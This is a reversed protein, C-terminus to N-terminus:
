RAVHHHHRSGRGCPYLARGNLLRKGDRALWMYLSSLVTSDGGVHREYKDLLDVGATLVLADRHHRGAEGEELTSWWDRATQADEVM